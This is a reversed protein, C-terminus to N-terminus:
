LMVRQLIKKRVEPSGYKLDYNLKDLEKKNAKYREKRKREEERNREEKEKQQKLLRKQEQKQKELYEPSPKIDLGLVQNVKDLSVMCMGAISEIKLQLLKSKDVNRVRRGKRGLYDCLLRSNIVYTVRNPNKQTPHPNTEIVLKKDLRKIERDIVIVTKLPKVIIVPRKDTDLINLLKTGDKKCNNRVTKIHEDKIELVCETHGYLLRPNEDKIDSYFPRIVPNTMRSVPSIKNDNLHQRVCDNLNEELSKNKDYLDVGVYKDHNDDEIIYLIYPKFAMVIAYDESTYDDGSGHSLSYARIKEIGIIDCLTLSFVTGSLSANDSANNVSADNNAYM